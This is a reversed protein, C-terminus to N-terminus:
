KERYRVPGPYTFPSTQGTQRRREILYVAVDHVVGFMVFGICALVMIHVIPPGVDIGPMITLYIMVACLPVILFPAPIAIRPEHLGWFPSREPNKFSRHMRKIRPYAWTVVVISVVAILLYLGVTMMQLIM